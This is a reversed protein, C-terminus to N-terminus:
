GRLPIVNGKKSAPPSACYAAWDAMLRRRKERMDGRRYAAEVKDPVTHAKALKVMENPYDTQETAWDTFASRFGHPVIDRDDQHPDTWRPRGNAVQDENMRDIVAAMAGNSLRSEGEGFVYEGFQTLATLLKISADCLPIVHDRKRRGRLGKMRAAPITWLKDELNIETRLAGLTDETRTANLITLELARAGLGDRDRLDAMFEAIRSYPLAPQPKSPSVQTPEPLLTDILGKWRAPNDGQRLKRATAWDLINEIRNRVRSATETRAIWFTPGDPDTKDLPQKLVKLVLDTTIGGVSLKGIIPYAWTELTSTWQDAHKANKWGARHDRIYEKGCQQFSVTTAKALAAAADLTKRAELPDLGQDLMQRQQRARERAEALTWTDFPALAWRARWRSERPAPTAM